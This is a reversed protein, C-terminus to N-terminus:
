SHTKTRSDMRQSEDGLEPLDDLSIEPVASINEASEIDDHIIRALDDVVSDIEDLKKSRWSRDFWEIMPAIVILAGVLALLAIWVSETVGGAVMAALMALIAGYGIGESRPTGLGVQRQIRVHQIDDVSRISVTTAVGTMTTHRWERTSGLQEAVGQTQIASGGFAAATDSAFQQRLRVIVDHWEDDSLTGPVTREVFVHKATHGSVNRLGVGTEQEQLAARLFTPDIGSEAAVQELESFTLGLNPRQEQSAQLQAARELLSQIEKDTFTRDSM